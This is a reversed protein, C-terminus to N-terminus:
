SQSRGVELPHAPVSGVPTPEWRRIMALAVALTARLLYVFARLVSQSPRGGARPRMHVPAESVSLGARLAIVLSEVTDGLYEAPYNRSFLAVARPGSV